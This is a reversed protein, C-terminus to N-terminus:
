AWMSASLGKTKKTASAKSEGNAGATQGRVENNSPEFALAVPSLKRSHSYSTARNQSAEVSSRKPTKNVDSAKVDGNGRM